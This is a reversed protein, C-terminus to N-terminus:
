FFKQTMLFTMTNSKLPDKQLVSCYATSKPTISELNESFFFGKVCIVLM